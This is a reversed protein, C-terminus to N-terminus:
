GGFRALIVGIPRLTQANEDLKVVPATRVRDTQNLAGVGRVWEWPGRETEEQYKSKREQVM